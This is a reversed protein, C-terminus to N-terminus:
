RENDKSGSSSLSSSSLSSCSGSSSLVIVCPLTVTRKCSYLERMIMLGPLLYLHRRYCHCHYRRCHRRPYALDYAVQCVVLQMKKLNQFYSHLSHYLHHYDMGSVIRHLGSQCPCHHEIQLLCHRQVQDMLGWETGYLKMWIGPCPCAAFCKTLDQGAPLSELREPERRWSSPVPLCGPSHTHWWDISWVEVQWSSVWPIELDSYRCDVYLITRWDNELLRHLYTIINYM